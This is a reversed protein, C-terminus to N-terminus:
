FLVNHNNNDYISFKWLCNDGYMDYKTKEFTIDYTRSKLQKCKTKIINLIYIYIINLYKFVNSINQYINNYYIIQLFM